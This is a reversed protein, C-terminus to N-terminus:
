FIFLMKLISIKKTTPLQIFLYCLDAGYSVFFQTNAWANLGHRARAQNLTLQVHLVSILRINFKMQFCSKKDIPLQSFCLIHRSHQFNLPCHGNTRYLTTRRISLNTCSNLVDELVEHKWCKCCYNKSIKVM